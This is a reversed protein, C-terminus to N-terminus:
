RSSWPGEYGRSAGHVRRLEPDQGDGDAVPRRGGRRGENVPTSGIRRGVPGGAPRRGSPLSSSPRGQHDTLLDHLEALVLLRRV